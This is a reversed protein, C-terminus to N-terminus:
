TEATTSFLLFNDTSSEGRHISEKRSLNMPLEFWFRSGLGPTSELGVNGELRQIAKRAIALGIGTGPISNAVNLREFVRFVREYHEPAIGIGNDEIWVRIFPTATECRIRIKGPRNPSLFKIANSLLNMLVQQLLHADTWVMPFTGKIQIEVKAQAIPGSLKKLASDLQARLPIKAPVLQVSCVSGYELLDQLLLDMREAAASIRKAHEQSEKDLQVAPSETLLVSFGQMARLPARLDHAVHYLVSQLSRISEQMTATRAAVHNELENAYDNLQDRAVRLQEEIRTREKIERELEEGRIRAKNASEEAKAKSQRLFHFLLVGALTTIGYTLIMTIEAPGYPGWSHYPETFFYDGLLLGAVLALLGPLLGCFRAALLAAPALVM